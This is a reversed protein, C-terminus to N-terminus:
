TCLLSVRTLPTRRARRERVNELDIGSANNAILIVPDAPCDKILKNCKYILDLRKDPNATPLHSKFDKLLTYFTAATLHLRPDALVSAVELKHGASAAASWYDVLTTLDKQKDYPWDSLGHKSIAALLNAIHHKVKSDPEM